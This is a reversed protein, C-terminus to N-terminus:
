PAPAPPEDRPPPGSPLSAGGSRTGTNGRKWGVWLDYSGFVVALWGLNIRTGIIVVDRIHFVYERALLVGGGVLFLLGFVLPWARGGQTQSSSM